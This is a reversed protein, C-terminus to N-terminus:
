SSSFAFSGAQRSLTQGQDAQGLRIQELATQFERDAKAQKDLVRVNAERRKLDALLQTANERLAEDVVGEQALDRAKEAHRVAEELEQLQIDLERSAALGEHLKADNLAKNVRDTAVKQREAQQQGVWM